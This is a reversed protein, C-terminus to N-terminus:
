QGCSRLPEAPEVLVLHHYHTECHEIEFTRVRYAPDFSSRTLFVNDSLCTTSAVLHEFYMYSDFHEQMYAFTMVVVVAYRNLIRFRLLYRRRLHPPLRITGFIKTCRHSSRSPSKDFRSRHIHM